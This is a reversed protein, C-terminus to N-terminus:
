KGLGIIKKLAKLKSQKKVKELRGFGYENLVAGNGMNWFTNWGTGILCLENKTGHGWKIEKVIVKAPYDKTALSVGTIPHIIVEDNIQLNGSGDSYLRGVFKFTDGNEM